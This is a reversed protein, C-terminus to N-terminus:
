AATDSDPVAAKTQAFFISRTTAPNTYITRQRRAWTREVDGSQAV